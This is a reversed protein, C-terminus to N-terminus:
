YYFPCTFYFFKNIRGNDNYSESHECKNKVRELITNWIETLIFYKLKVTKRSMRIAENTTKWTEENNNGISTFAERIQKHGQHLANVLDALASWKTESLSKSVTMSELCWEM